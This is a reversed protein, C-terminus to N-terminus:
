LFFDELTAESVILDENYISDILGYTTIMSVFLQKLTKTTKQYVEIKNKLNLAYEKNIRFPQNAYKIECITRETKVTM